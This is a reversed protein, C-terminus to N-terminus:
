FWGSDEHLGRIRDGRELFGDTHGSVLDEGAALAVVTRVTAFRATSAFVYHM